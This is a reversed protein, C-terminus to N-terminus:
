AVLMEIGIMLLAGTFGFMALFRLRAIYQDLFRHTEDCRGCWVAVSSWGVCLLGSLFLVAALLSEPAVSVLDYACHHFPLGLIRPAAVEVLYLLSVPISLLAGASLLTTGVGASRPRIVRLLLGVIIAANLGYFGGALYPQQQADIHTDPTFQEAQRIREISTTCCGGAVHIESKPITLYAAEIAADALTVAGTLLVALLVRNQLPATQTRRNILYLVGAAGSSFVVLPKIWQLSTVLGPLFRSPGITGAGIQTVGYICMITPWERVYSQLMLYFVPWSTVNLVFLVSATLLLLYSRRELTEVQADNLPRCSSRWAVFGVGVALAALVFRVACLFLSVVAYGNLLVFGCGHGRLRRVEAVLAQHPCVYYYDKAVHDFRV